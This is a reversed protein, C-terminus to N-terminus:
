EHFYAYIAKATKESIGEVKMLEALTATEVEARAGFHQLLARKRTAGIGPIDDLASHTIAASRKNRHRGIAFRHAEDRLRQLYHLVADNVPLQFPARGPMHFWERGANRDEGKAIAVLAPGQVGIKKLEEEVAYLQGIGGDILLLDPLSNTM